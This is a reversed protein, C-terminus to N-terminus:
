WNMKALSCAAKLRKAESKTQWQVTRPKASSKEMIEQYPLLDRIETGM